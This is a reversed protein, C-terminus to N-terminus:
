FQLHVQTEANYIVDLLPNVHNIKRLHHIGHGIHIEMSDVRAVEKTTKRISERLIRRLFRGTAEGDAQGPRREREKLIRAM